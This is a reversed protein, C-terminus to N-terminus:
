HCSALPQSGTSCLSSPGPRPWSYRELIPSWPLGSMVHFVRKGEFDSDFKLEAEEIKNDLDGRFSNGDNYVLSSDRDVTRSPVNKEAFKKKFFEGLHLPLMKLYKDDRASGHFDILHKSADERSKFKMRCNGHRCLYLDQQPDHDKLAHKRLSSFCPFFGDCLPCILKKNMFTVM